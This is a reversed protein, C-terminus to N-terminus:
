LYWNRIFVRYIDTKGLLYEQVQMTTTPPYGIPQVAPQTAQGPHHTLQSYFQGEKNSSFNFNLKDM